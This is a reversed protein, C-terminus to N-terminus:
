SLLLHIEQSRAIQIFMSIFITEIFFFFQSDEVSIGVKSTKILLYCNLESNEVLYTAIYNRNIWHILLLTTRTKEIFLYCNLKTNRILLYSRNKESLEIVFLESKKLLYTVIQNRNKLKISM